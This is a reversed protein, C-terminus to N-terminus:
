RSHARVPLDHLSSSSKSINQTEVGDPNQYSKEMFITDTRGDTNLGSAIFNRLKDHLHKDSANKTKTSWIANKLWFTGWIADGL